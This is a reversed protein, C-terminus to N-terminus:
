PIRPTAIPPGGPRARDTAPRGPRSRRRSPRRPAGPGPRCRGGSRRRRRRRHRRRHRRRNPPGGESGRSNDRPSGERSSSAAAPPPTTGRSASIATPGRSCAKPFGPRGPRPRGGSRSPSPLPPIGRRSARRRRAEPYRAPPAGTRSRGFPEPGRRTLSPVPARRGSVVVVTVVHSSRRCVCARVCLCGVSRGVRLLRARGRAIAIGGKRFRWRIASRRRLNPSLDGPSVLIARRLTTRPAIPRERYRHTPVTRSPDDNLVTM